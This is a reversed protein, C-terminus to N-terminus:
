LAHLLSWVKVRSNKLLESRSGFGARSSAETCVEESEGAVVPWNQHISLQSAALNKFTNSNSKKSCQQKKQFDTHASPDKRQGM